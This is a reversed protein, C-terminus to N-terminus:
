STAKKIAAKIAKNATHLGSHSGNSIANSIMRAAELLEPAAAILKANAEKEKLKSDVMNHITAIHNQKDDQIEYADSEQYKKYNWKGQTFKTHKMTNQKIM